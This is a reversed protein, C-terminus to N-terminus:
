HLFKSHVSYNLNKCANQAGRGWTFAGFPLCLTFFGVVVASLTLQKQLDGTDCYPM